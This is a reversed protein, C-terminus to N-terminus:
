VSNSLMKGLNAVILKSWLSYMFVHVDPPNTDKTEDMYPAVVHIYLLRAVFKCKKYWPVYLHKTRRQV